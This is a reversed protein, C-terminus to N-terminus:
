LSHLAAQARHGPRHGGAQAHRRLAGGPLKGETGALEVVALSEEIRARSRGAPDHGRQVLGLAINEAVTMSDFLAAFQFVYGIRGRLAALQERDLDQVVEGDVLVRGGDPEILGVICSSPSARAAGSYGIIVTNQGDPVDLSVGRRPRPEPDSPDQDLGDLQIVTWAAPLVALDEGADCCCWRGSPTWCWSRRAAWSWPAPPRRASGQAGGEADLGRLCGMLAVAAGFSASKVLGFWIDKFRYFLKLGKFFEPTSLDLLNVATIWGSGVGVAMAFATVVPFMLTAALVRPVVLYAYRITPWPRWRM